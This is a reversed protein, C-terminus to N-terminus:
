VNLNSVMTVQEGNSGCGTIVTSLAFALLAVKLKKDKLM